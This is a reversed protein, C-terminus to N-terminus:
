GRGAGRALRTPIVKHWLRFVAAHLLSPNSMPARALDGLADGAWTDGREFRLWIVIDLLIDRFETRKSRDQLLVAWLRQAADAVREHQTGAVRALSDCIALRVIPATDNAIRDDILRWFVTAAVDSIRFLERVVLYRIIADGSGAM